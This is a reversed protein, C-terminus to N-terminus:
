RTRSLTLIGQNEEIKVHRLYTMGLLVMAPYNGEVVTAPVNNVAIGGVDVSRLTVSWAAVM